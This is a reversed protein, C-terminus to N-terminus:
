STVTNSETLLSNYLKIYNRAMVDYSFNESVWEQCYEQWKQRMSISKLLTEISNALSQFDHLPVLLGNMKNKIIDPIGGVKFGAVVTGCAVAELATQGFAEETSPMVFVDAARYIISQLNEDDVQSFSKYRINKPLELNGKGFSLLIIQDRKNLLNITKLLYEVGKRPSNVNHASFLIIPVECPLNLVRRAENRNFPHYINHDVALHIKEIRYKRSLSSLEAQKKTWESNAVFVLNQPNFKRFANQKLKFIFSAYDITRDSGIIPCCGCNKAFKDCEGAYDCGGTIWNIDHLTIVIPKDTQLSQFFAPVDVFNEIKHINIVDFKDLCNSSQLLDSRPDQLAGKKKVLSSHRHKWSSLNSLYFRRLYRRSRTYIDTSGSFVEVNADTSHKFRVLMQSDLNLRQLAQHQRFAAKAAGGLLDTTSLHVVKM